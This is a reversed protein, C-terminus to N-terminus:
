EQMKNFINDLEDAVGIFANLVDPDFHEPMTRGDGETIIRFAEAHELPKKYPRKSRLADYQDILMVIRGEIPIAEGKLGHPYGTGDWREHHCLAISAALGMNPHPSGSLMREGMLTHTKMIDVEEPLLGGPKLLINDPIGIKGIDHMASAFRVAEIFDESMGLAESIKATYLGIRKIHSGTDTDRYEAVVTLRNVLELIMNKVMALADALERTRTKVTEELMCKYDREIRLLRVYRAAKEIAHLFYEPSYPKIIFDFAGQKVANVAVELEAYATMLIVPIEPNFARIRQLLELGSVLPMRIDSVVMDLNDKRLIAMADEANSCAVVVYGCAELLASEAELVFPDDDVMLIAAKKNTNM